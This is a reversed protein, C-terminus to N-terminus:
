VLRERLETHRRSHMMVLYAFDSDSQPLRDLGLAPLVIRAKHLLLELGGPFASARLQLQMIKDSDAPETMLYYDEDGV